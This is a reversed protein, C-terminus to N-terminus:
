KSQVFVCHPVFHLFANFWYQCIPCVGTPTAIFKKLVLLGLFYMYMAAYLIKLVNCFFCVALVCCVGCFSIPECVCKKKVICIYIHIHFAGRQELIYWLPSIITSATSFTWVSFLIYYAIFMSNKYRCLYM